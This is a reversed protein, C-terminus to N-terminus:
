RRLGKPYHNKMMGESVKGWGLPLGALTPLVFGRLGEPADLVEGAQYRRAQEETLPLRPLAPPCVSVAWASDRICM